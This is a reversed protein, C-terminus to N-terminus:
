MYKELDSLTIEYIYNNYVCKALAKAAKSDFANLANILVRDDEILDDEVSSPLYYIFLVVEIPSDINDEKSIVYGADGEDYEMNWDSIAFIIDKNEDEFEIIAQRIEEVNKASLLKRSIGTKKIKEIIAWFREKM